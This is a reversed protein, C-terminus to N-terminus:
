PTPLQSLATRLDQEWLGAKQKRALTLGAKWSSRANVPDTPWLLIGELRLREPEFYYEGTAKAQQAAQQLWPRAETPRDAMLHARALLVYRSTLGLQSGINAEQALGEAMMAFVKLLFPAM